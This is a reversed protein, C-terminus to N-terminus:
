AKIVSIFRHKVWGIHPLLYPKKHPSLPTLSSISLPRPLRKLHMGVGHLQFSPCVNTWMPYGQFAPYAQRNLARHSQSAPVPSSSKRRGDIVKGLSPKIVAREKSWNWICMDKHSGSFCYCSPSPNFISYLAITATVNEACYGRRGGRRRTMLWRRGSSTVRCNVKGFMLKREDGVREESEIVEDLDAMTTPPERPPRKVPM